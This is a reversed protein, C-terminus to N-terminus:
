SVSLPQSTASILSVCSLLCAAVSILSWGEIAVCLVPRM